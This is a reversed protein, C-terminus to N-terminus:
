LYLQAWLSHDEMEQCQGKLNASPDGAATPKPFSAQIRKWPGRGQEDCDRGTRGVAEPRSQQRERSLFGGLTRRGALTITHGSKHLVSRNIGTVGVHHPTPGEEM